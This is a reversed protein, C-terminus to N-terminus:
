DRARRWAAPSTGKWRKFARHFASSEAFGLLFAVEELPVTTDKLYREARDIRVQELLERHSTGQASLRRRLTREGLGIRRAVDALKVEGDALGNHIAHRVQALLDDTSPREALLRSAHDDLLQFLNPDAGPLKFALAELPFRIANRECGFAIQGGLVPEFPTRDAPAPFAFEVQLQAGGAWARTNLVAVGLVLQALVDPVRSGDRFEFSWIGFAGERGLQPLAADILLQYYRCLRALLTELTPSNRVLHELVHAGPRHHVAALLGFSPEGSTRLAADLLGMAVAHPVRRPTEAQGPVPLGLEQLLPVPDM